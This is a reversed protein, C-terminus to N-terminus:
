HLLIVILFMLPFVSAFKQQFRELRSADTSTSNWVVSAYELKSRMLTFYLVYLCDLPSFRLAIFRILGLLKICKSFLFDVHNHFYLKSNVFVGLDKMSSARTIAAHCLLYQCSLVNTTRSYSM